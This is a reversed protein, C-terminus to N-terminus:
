RNILNIVFTNKTELLKLRKYSPEEKIIGSELSFLKFRGIVRRGYIFYENGEFLVKDFRQFGFLFRPATNRIHSRAGKFLKRNQKRVQKILYSQNRKQISGNAIVFADNIHSKEIGSELRKEKTEYGYTTEVDIYLAKLQDIIRWRIISMLTEAKFSKKPKAKLEVIGKHFESHCTKCLTILNDPQNTGGEIRSIIHHVNLIKDKSKGKCLQCKHSDRYLVYERTNSFGKQEGNQYGKGKIEPNKIKQIDFAAIEMRVKSIPLLESVKNVLKIHSDLKHQVSPMLRGKKRANARNLFRPKRYRTKRERRARRYMRREKLLKSIDTRLEVQASFLEEKKSVASLGIFKYGTDVGLTIEQKTEGTPYLLQITFPTRKVVKAKGQKLLIRAKAPTTPMLPKNRQNKVFVRL